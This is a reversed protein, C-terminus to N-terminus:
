TESKHTQSGLILSTARSKIGHIKVGNYARRMSM